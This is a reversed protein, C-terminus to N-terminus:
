AVNLSLSNRFSSFDRFYCFILFLQFLPILYSSHNGMSNWLANEVLLLANHIKFVPSLSLFSPTNWPIGGDWFEYQNSGPTLRMLWALVPETRCSLAPPRQQMRGVTSRRWPNSTRVVPKRSPAKSNSGWLLTCLLWLGSDANGPCLSHSTDKIAM